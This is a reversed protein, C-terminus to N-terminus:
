YLNLKLRKIESSHNAMVAFFFDSWNKGLAILFLDLMEVNITTIGLEYRSVQQQSLKVLNGLQSASLSKDKRSERLFNGIDISLSKNFVM